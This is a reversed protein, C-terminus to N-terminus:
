EAFFEDELMLSLCHYIPLHYEQVRYTESSPVCIALDCLPKLKGGSEGTLALTFLGRARAVEAAACVNRANGSTSIGVFVDGARGLGWTLQAFILEPAVDNGFATSLSPFGTLPIAPLAGQLKGALEDPLLNREKQNLPRKRCFGKLLEGAWHEADSASGGNGCLLLKGDRRLSDRMATFAKWIDDSCRALAPARQILNELHVKPM